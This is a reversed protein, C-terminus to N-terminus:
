SSRQEDVVVSGCNLIHSPLRTDGRFAYRSPCSDTVKQFETTSALIIADLRTQQTDDNRVDYIIRM